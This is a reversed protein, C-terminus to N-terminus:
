LAREGAHAARTDGGASDGREEGREEVEPSEFNGCKGIKEFCDLMTEMRRWLFVWIKLTRAPGEGGVAGTFVRERSHTAGTDQYGRREVGGRGRSLAEQGSHDENRSPLPYRLLVDDGDGGAGEGVRRNERRWHPFGARRRHAAGADQDRRGRMGVGKGKGYMSGRLFDMNEIIAFVKRFLVHSNRNKQGARERM